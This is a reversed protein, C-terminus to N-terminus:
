GSGVTATPPESQEPLPKGCETCTASEGRPYACAPCLGRRVRVFRRTAFLGWVLLGLIVAYCLTNVIIAQWIPRFPLARPLEGLNKRPRSGLLLGTAIGGEHPRPASKWSHHTQCWLALMPWGCAQVLRVEKSRRVSEWKPTPVRFRTWEGFLVEVDGWERYSQRRGPVRQSVMVVAGPRSYHNVFQDYTDGGMWGALEVESDLPDITLACGWAVAVNVVAGAVLFILITLLRRRM